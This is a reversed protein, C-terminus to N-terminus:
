DASWPFFSQHFRCMSHNFANWPVSLTEFETQIPLPRLSGRFLGDIRDGVLSARFELKSIQMLLVNPEFTDYHLM